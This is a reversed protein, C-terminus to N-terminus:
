DCKVEQAIKPLDKLRIIIFDGNVEKDKLGVIPIKNEKKAKLETEKFLRIVSFKQKYKAEIFLRPHISDSATVKSCIGSLSNRESGFFEALRQELKQWTRRHTM